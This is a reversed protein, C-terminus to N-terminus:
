NTQWYLLPYGGAQPMKWVPEGGNGFEWGLGSEYTSRNQFASLAVGSGNERADSVPTNLSMGSNAINNIVFFPLALRGAIRGIYTKEYANSTINGNIAACHEISNENTISAGAFGAIGGAHADDRSSSSTIDGASYSKKIKSSGRNDGVVGGAYSAFQYSSATIDGTSYSNEITGGSVEGAIGGAYAFTRGSATIDGASYSNKITSPDLLYGAIGGASSYNNSSSATINGASYSNEITVDWSVHGAIGGAHSYGKGNTIINGASYSNEITGEYVDGAIGGAYSAYSSSVNIGNEGIEVGLNTVKGRLCGFLGARVEVGSLNVSLGTIKYGNGDLVGTFPNELTGVPTWGAASTYHGSLEQTLGSVSSYASLDINGMLIYHGSLNNRINDLDQPTWVTTATGATEGGSDGGEEGSCAAFILMMLASFYVYFIHTMNM